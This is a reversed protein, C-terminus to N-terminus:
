EWSGWTLHIGEDAQEQTYANTTRQGIKVHYAHQGEPVGSVTWDFVCGNKGEQWHGSGFEASALPKGQADM